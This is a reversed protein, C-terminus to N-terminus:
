GNPFPMRDTRETIFRAGRRERPFTTTRAHTLPEVDKAGAEIAAAETDANADAITRRSLASMTSSFSTAARRASSAAKKFLVRIEPATRNKNDTHVEVIVPM